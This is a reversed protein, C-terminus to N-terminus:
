TQIEISATEEEPADQDPSLDIIEEPLYRIDDFNSQYKGVSYKSIIKPGIKQSAKKRAGSKNEKNSTKNMSKSTSPKGARTSAFNKHM